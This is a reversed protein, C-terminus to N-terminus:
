TMAGYVLARLIDRFDAYINKGRVWAPPAFNLSKNETAYIM